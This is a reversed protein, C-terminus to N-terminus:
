LQSCIELLDEFTLYLSIYLGNEYFRDAKLTITLSCARWLACAAAFAIGRPQGDAAFEAQIEEGTPTGIGDILNYWSSAILEVRVGEEPKREDYRVTTSSYPKTGRLGKFWNQMRENLDKIDDAYSQGEALTQERVRDVYDMIEPPLEKVPDYVRAASYVAPAVLLCLLILLRKM